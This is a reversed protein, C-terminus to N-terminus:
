LLICAAEEEKCESLRANTHGLKAYIRASRFMMKAAALLDFDFCCHRVGELSVGPGRLSLPEGTNTLANLKFLPYMLNTDIERGAPLPEGM